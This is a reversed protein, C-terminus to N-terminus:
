GKFGIDPGEDPTQPHLRRKMRQSFGVALFGGGLLLAWMVAVFLTTGILDSTAKEPSDFQNLYPRRTCYFVPIATGQPLAVSNSKSGGYRKGDVEYEYFVDGSSGKPGPPSWGTVRAEIRKHDRELQDAKWYCFGWWLAAVGVLGLVIKKLIRRTSKIREDESM